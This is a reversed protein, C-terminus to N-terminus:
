LVHDTELKHHIFAKVEALVTEFPQSADIVHFPGTEPLARYQNLEQELAEVLSRSHDPKRALSIEVPLHLDIIYSPLPLRKYFYQELRRTVWYRRRVDILDIFTDNQPLPFRDFVLVENKAQINLAAILRNSRIRAIVVARLNQVVNLGVRALATIGIFRLPTEATTRETWVFIKQLFRLLPKIGVQGGLGMYVHNAHYAPHLDESLTRCLLTKGSGDIGIFAFSPPTLKATILSIGRSPAEM